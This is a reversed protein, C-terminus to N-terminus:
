KSEKLQIIYHAEFYQFIWKFAKIQNTHTKSQSHSHSLTHEHTRAFADEEDSQCVCLCARAMADFPFQKTMMMITNPGYTNHAQNGASKGFKIENKPQQQEQRNAGEITLINFVHVTNILPLGIQNKRLVVKSTGLKGKKNFLNFYVHFTM